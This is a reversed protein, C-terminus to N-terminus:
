DKFEYGTQKRSQHSLCVIHNSFLSWFYDFKSVFYGYLPQFIHDMEHFTTFYEIIKTCLLTSPIHNYHYMASPKLFKDKTLHM